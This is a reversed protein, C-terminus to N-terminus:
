EYTNSHKIIKVSTETVVTSNSPVDRLVVTNAGIIVNDGIHIAGLVIAGAGIFVNNGIEPSIKEGLGKVGITVNQMITCNSGIKSDKGIVIGIPHPIHTNSPLKFSIVCSFLLRFDKFRLSNYFGWYLIRLQKIFFSKGKM